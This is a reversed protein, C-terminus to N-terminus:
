VAGPFRACVHHETTAGCHAQPGVSQPVSVALHGGFQGAVPPRSLSPCVVFVGAERAVRVLSHFAGLRGGYSSKTPGLHKFVTTGFMEDKVEQYVQIGLDFRLYNNAIFRITRLEGGKPSALTVRIEVERM